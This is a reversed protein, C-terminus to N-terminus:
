AAQAIQDELLVRIDGLLGARDYKSAPNGDAWRLITRPSVNAQDALMKHSIGVEPCHRIIASFAEADGDDVRDLVKRFRAIHDRKIEVLESHIAHTGSM